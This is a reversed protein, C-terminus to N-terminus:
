SLPQQGAADSGLVADQYCSDQFLNQVLMQPADTRQGSPSASGIPDLHVLWASGLEVRHMYRLCTIQHKVKKKKKAHKDPLSSEFYDACFVTV